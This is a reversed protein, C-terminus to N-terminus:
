GRGRDMTGQALWASPGTRNTVLSPLPSAVMLVKNWRHLCQVETRTDGLLDAIQTRKLRCDSFYNVKKWNKAGHEEVINKLREDEEFTWKGGVAPRRQARPKGMKIQVLRLQDIRAQRDM